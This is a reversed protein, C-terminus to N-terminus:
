TKASSFGALRLGEEGLALIRTADPHCLLGSSHRPGAAEILRRRIAIAASVSIQQGTIAWVLAEFPSASVPIRLGRNRAILPGLLPHDAHREEFEEVNQTLGLMRGALASLLPQADPALGDVTLEAQARRSEFRISLLAP